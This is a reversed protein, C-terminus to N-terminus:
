IARRRNIHTIQITYFGARRLFDFNSRLALTKLSAPFTESLFIVDLQPKDMLEQLTDENDQSLGNLHQSNM